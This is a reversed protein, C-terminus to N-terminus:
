QDDEPWWGPRLLKGERCWRREDARWEARDVIPTEIDKTALVDAALLAAKQLPAINVRVGDNIDPIYAREQAIFEQITEPPQRKGDISTVDDYLLQTALWPEWTLADACTWSDIKDRISKAQGIKQDLERKLVKVEEKLEKIRQRMQRLEAISPSPEQAIEEELSTIQEQVEKIQDKIPQLVAEDFQRVLKHLCHVHHDLLVPKMAFLFHEAKGEQLEEAPLAQFQVLPKLTVINCPRQPLLIDHLSVPRTLYQDAAGDAHLRM